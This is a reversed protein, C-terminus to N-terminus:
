SKRGKGPASKAQSQVLADLKKLYANEMRLTNLEALLEERTLKDDGQSAMRSKHDGRKMTESRRGRRKSILGSPGEREYAREWVGVIDFKRIDFLAATQRYSLGDDRMRRLVKLKFEKSYEQRRRERIGDTGHLKYAAVWKRLSSPEVDHIKAAAKWGFQGTCYTQVAALKVQDSYKKL